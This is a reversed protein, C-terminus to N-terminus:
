LSSVVADLDSTLKEMRGVLNSHTDWGHMELVAVRPGDPAALARAVAAAALAPSRGRNVRRADKGSVSDDTPGSRISDSLASALEPDKAYSDLLRALFDPDAEPLTSPAWTQVPADGLLMLPVTAGVAMGGTNGLASLARNLFGDHAGFPKGSGNELLNQGDFHSRERYRTAMAPFVALEKKSWLDAFTPLGRHLAFPGTLPLADDLAINPRLTRYHPDATPPLVHLGDQGGRQFIIM